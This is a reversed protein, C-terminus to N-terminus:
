AGAESERCAQEAPIPTALMFHDPEGHLFPFDPADRAVSWQRGGFHRAHWDRALAEAEIAQDPSVPVTMWGEPISFDEFVLAALRRYAADMLPDPPTVMSLPSGSHSHALVLLLVADLSGTEMQERLLGPAERRWTDFAPTTWARADTSGAGVYHEAQLYRRLADRHGALAAQRLYDHLRDNLAPPIGACHRAADRLVLQGSAVQNASELKGQRALEAERAELQTQMHDSTLWPKASWMHCSSLFVGVQCAAQTDGREARDVLDRLSPPLDRLASDALPPAANPAAASAGAAPDPVPHDSAPTIAPPAASGPVPGPWLLWAASALVAIVIATATLRRLGRRSTDSM